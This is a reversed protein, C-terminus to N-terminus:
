EAVRTILDRVMIFVMDLPFWTGISRDFLVTVSAPFEDDALWLALTVPMEPFPALGIACDGIDEIVGGLVLGRERFAEADRGFRAVIPEVPLAHPGRFFTPGGTLEKETIKEGSLDDGRPALMYGILLIQFAQAPVRGAVPEIEVVVQRDIDVLYRLDLFGVVYDFESEGAVVGRKRLLEERPRVRLDLWHLSTPAACGM